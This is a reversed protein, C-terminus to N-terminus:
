LVDVKRKDTNKTTKKPFNFTKEEQGGDEDIGWCTSSYSCFKCAADGINVQLEGKPAGRALWKAIPEKDKKYEILGLKYLSALKEESYSISFDRPPIINQEDAKNLADYRKWIGNITYNKEEVVGRPTHVVAYKDNNEEKLTIHFDWLQIFPSLQKSKNKLDWSDGRAVYWIFWKEPRKQDKPINRQYYDLYLMSQLIHAPDPYPLCKSSKYSGVSKIEIGFVTDDTHDYGLYDIRGSMKIIKEYISSEVAMQQIGMAIGYDRLLDTVMEHLYNGQVGALEWNTDRPEVKKFNKRQYWQERNCAGIVETGGAPSPVTISASSPHCNSYTRATTELPTQMATFLKKSLLNM